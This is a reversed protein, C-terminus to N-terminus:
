VGWKDKIRQRVSEHASVRGNAVDDLSRSLGADIEKEEDSTYQEEYEYNLSDLFSLLVKEEQENHFKVRIAGM